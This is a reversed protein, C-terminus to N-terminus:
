KVLQNLYVEINTYENDITYEVADNGNTHNLGHKAEWKDPMGDKDSDEQPKKTKLEPWGGVDKQSDIIGNNFSAKGKKVEEVIRKDVADRCHSAGAGALVSEYAEEATQMNLPIVEFPEEAKTSEPNECQVGGAWNNETVEESGAMYNGHVYFKGYPESPNIIRATVSKKTAPGPKFYNNVMNYRGKEGGYVSNHGWNYIVNNRFDVLEDASNPTSSSGSFRPNRSSHHAILNHHFTTKEGGWIGGYGHAGKKHVSQSLSESVICWQLTFESNRYFSACEDTSWSVSCHDIIVNKNGRGKFADDEVKKQDGLRFRMYRIIVNDASIRVPYNKICIGDGPASQGAITVDGNDVPLDSELAINGSVAFTIIRPGKSEVAERLSGPGADNLNTVILVKGGRGGTAYKGFGEAGPFSLQQANIASASFLSTIFLVTTLIKLRNWNM